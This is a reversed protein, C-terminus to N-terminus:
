NKNSLKFNSERFKEPNRMFDRADLMWKLPPQTMAHDDFRKKSEDIEEEPRNTEMKVEVAKQLRDRKREWEKVSTKFDKLLFTPHFNKKNCVRM